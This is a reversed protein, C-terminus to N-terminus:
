MRGNGGGLGAAWATLEAILEPQALGARWRVTEPGGLRERLRAAPAYVAGATAADMPAGLADAPNAILVPAPALAGALEPLDYHLLVGPIFASASLAYLDAEIITRYSALTECAAVAGIRADLAAAHLAV